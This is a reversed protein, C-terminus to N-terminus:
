ENSQDIWDEGGPVAKRGGLLGIKAKEAEWGSIFVYTINIM